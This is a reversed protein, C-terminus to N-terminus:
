ENTVDDVRREEVDSVPWRNIMDANVLWKDEIGEGRGGMCSLRGRKMEDYTDDQIVDDEDIRCGVDSWAVSEAALSDVQYVIV